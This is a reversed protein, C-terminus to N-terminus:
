GEPADDSVVRLLAVSAADDCRPPVRMSADETRDRSDPPAPVRLELIWSFKEPM